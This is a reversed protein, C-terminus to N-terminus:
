AVHRWIVRNVIRTINARAYGFDCALAAHSEGSAARARIAQVDAETLKANYRGSGENYGYRGLDRKDQENDAQTGLALHEPNWCRKCGCLHRVQMGAPIPEVLAQYAARHLFEPKSRYPSWGYGNYTLGQWVWCGSVPDIETRAMRRAKFRLGYPKDHWSNRHRKEILVKM